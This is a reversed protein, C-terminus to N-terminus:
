LFLSEIINKKESSKKWAEWVFLWDFWDEDDGLNGAEFERIFINSKMNHKEEFKRLRGAYNRIKVENLKKQLIIGARLIPLADERIEIQQMM